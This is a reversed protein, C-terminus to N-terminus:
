RFYVQQSSVLNAPTGVPTLPTLPYPEAVGSRVAAADRIRAAELEQSNRYRWSNKLHDGSNIITTSNASSDGGMGSVPNASSGINSVVSSGPSNASSTNDDLNINANPGAQIARIGDFGNAVGGATVMSGAPVDPYPDNSLTARLAAAFKRGSEATPVIHTVSTEPASSIRITQKKGCNDFCATGKQTDVALLQIGDRSQGETLM